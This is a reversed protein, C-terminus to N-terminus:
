NAYILAATVHEILDLNKSGNCVNLKEKDEFTSPKGIFPASIYPKLFCGQNQCITFAVHLHKGGSIIPEIDCSKLYVSMINIEGPTNAKIPGQLSDQM